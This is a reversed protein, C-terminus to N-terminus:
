KTLDGEHRHVIKFNKNTRPRATLVQMNEHSKYKNKLKQQKNTAGIDQHGFEIDELKDIRNRSAKNQNLNKLPQSEEEINNHHIVSNHHFELDKLRKNLLDMIVINGPQSM